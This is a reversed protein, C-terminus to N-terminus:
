RLKDFDIYRPRNPEEIALARMIAARDNTQMAVWVKKAKEYSLDLNNLWDGKEYRVITTKGSDEDLFVLKPVTRGGAMYLVGEKPLSPEKNRGSQVYVGYTNLNGRETLALSNKVKAIFRVKELAEESGPASEQAPSTTAVPTTAPSSDTKSITAPDACASLLAPVLVIYVISMRWM